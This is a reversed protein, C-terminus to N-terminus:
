EVKGLPGRRGGRRESDAAAPVFGKEGRGPAPGPIASGGGLLLWPPGPRAAGRPGHMAPPQQRHTISEGKGQASFGGPSSGLEEPGSIGMLFGDAAM